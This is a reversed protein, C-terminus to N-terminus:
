RAGLLMTNESPRAQKPATGFGSAAMAWCDHGAAFGFLHGLKAPDIGDEAIELGAQGTAVMSEVELLIGSAIKRRETIAEVSAEIQAREMLAQDDGGSRSRRVGHANNPHSVNM